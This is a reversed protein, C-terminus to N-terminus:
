ASGMGSSAKRTPGLLIPRSPLLVNTIAPRVAVSAAPRAVGDLAKRNRERRLAGCTKKRWEEDEDVDVVSRCPLLRCAKGYDPSGDPDM